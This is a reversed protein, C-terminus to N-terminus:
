KKAKWARFVKSTCVLLRHRSRNNFFFLYFLIAADGIACGARAGQIFTAQSALLITIALSVAFVSALRADNEPSDIFDRTTGIRTAFRKSYLTRALSYVIGIQSLLFLWDDVTRACAWQTPSEM